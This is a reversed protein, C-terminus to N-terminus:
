FNKYIHWGTWKEQFAFLRFHKIAQQRMITAIGQGQYEPLVGIFGEHVTNENLDRPNFYFMDMGIIQNNNSDTAVFLM